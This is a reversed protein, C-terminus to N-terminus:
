NELIHGKLLPVGKSLPVLLVAKAEALTQWSFGDAPVLL